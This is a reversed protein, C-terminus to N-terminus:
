DKSTRDAKGKAILATSDLVFLSDSLSREQVGSQGRGDKPKHKLKIHHNMHTRYLFDKGCYECKFNRERTHVVYHTKLKHTNTFKLDCQDCQLDKFHCKVHSIIANITSSYTSTCHNCSYSKGGEQDQVVTYHSTWDKRPKYNANKEHAKKHLGLNGSTCFTMPCLDCSFCKEANHIKLHANYSELSHVVHNCINCEYKETKEHVRSVHRFLKNQRHFTKGCYSCGLNLKHDRMHSKLATISNCVKGCQECTSPCLVSEGLHHAKVHGERAWLDSYRRDCYECKIPQAHMKKHLNLSRVNRLVVTEMVCESCTYPTLDLHVSLHELLAKASGMSESKCIYCKHDHLKPRNPNRRLRRRSPYTPNRPKVPQEADSNANEETSIKLAKDNTEQDGSILEVDYQEIPDLKILVSELEPKIELSLLENVDEPEEKLIQDANMEIKEVDMHKAINTEQRDPQAIGFIKKRLMKENQRFRDIMEKLKLLNTACPKCVQTPLGDNEDMKLQLIEEIIQLLQKETYDYFISRLRSKEESCMRCMKELDM